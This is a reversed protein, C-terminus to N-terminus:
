NDPIGKLSLSDLNSVCFDGAFRNRNTKPIANKKIYKTNPQMTINQFSSGIGKDYLLLSAKPINSMTYAKKLNM